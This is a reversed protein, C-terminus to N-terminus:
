VIIGGCIVSIGDNKDYCVLSQGRTVSRQPEDFIVRLGTESQEIVASVMKGSSRYKVWVPLQGGDMAGAGGWIMNQLTAQSVYTSEAPGIIVQNQAADIDVVFLPVPFAIGLGKRQGITYHWFGQHKGLVRGDIYVINGERPQQELLDTYDGNYFDQSDAKEASALGRTRAMERVQEKTFNGLPFLTQGLQEQTLRYLFYSQDKKDDIGRQLVFQNNQSQIRAYHGTAFYDFHIGAEIAKSRLLGFKMVENCKVCPNPTVGSLYSEKFYSLVYKKYEESCDLVHVDFGYTEGLARVTQVDQKETPGYCAGESAKLNPIDKNYISMTLGIIRYGQEQLLLAALTSDVGGSLGVAVTQTM